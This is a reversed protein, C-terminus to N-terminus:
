IYQSDITGFIHLRIMSNYGTVAFHVEGPVRWILQVVGAGSYQISLRIGFDSNGGTCLSKPQVSYKKHNVAFGTSRTEAPGIRRATFQGKSKPICLNEKYPYHPLQSNKRCSNGIGHKFNRYPLAGRSM